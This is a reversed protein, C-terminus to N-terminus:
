AQAAGPPQSSCGGQVLDTLHLNLWEYPPPQAGHDYPSNILRQVNGTDADVPGAVGIGLCLRADELELGLSAAALNRGLGAIRSVVADPDMSPLGLRAAGIKAGDGDVIVGSLEWPRIEIGVAFLGNALRRARHRVDAWPYSGSAWGAPQSAPRRLGQTRRVFTAPRGHTPSIPVRLARKTLAIAEYV